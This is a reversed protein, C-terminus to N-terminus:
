LYSGTAKIPSIPVRTDHTAFVASFHLLDASGVLAVSVFYKAANLRKLDAQHVALTFWCGLKPSLYTHLM